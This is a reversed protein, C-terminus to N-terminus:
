AGPATRPKSASRSAAIRCPFCDEFLNCHKYIGHVVHQVDYDSLRRRPAPPSACTRRRRHRRQAAAPAAAAAAATEDDDELGFAPGEAASSPTNGASVVSGIEGHPPDEDEERARELRFKAYWVHLRKAL